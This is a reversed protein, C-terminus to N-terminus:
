GGVNLGGCEGALEPQTMTYGELMFRATNTKRVATAAPTPNIAAAPNTALDSISPAPLSRRTAATSSAAPTGTDIPDAPKSMPCHNRSRGESGTSSTAM